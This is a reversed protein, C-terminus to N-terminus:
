ENSRSRAEKKNKKNKPKMRIDKLLEGEQDEDYKSRLLTNSITKPTAKLLSQKVKMKTSEVKIKKQQEQEKEIEMVEDKAEEYADNFIDGDHLDFNVVNARRQENRMENHIAHAPIGTEKSLEKAENRMLEQKRMNEDLKELDLFNMKRLNSIEFSNNFFSSDYLTTGKIPKILGGELIADKLQDYTLKPKLGSTFPINLSM